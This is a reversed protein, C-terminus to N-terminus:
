QNIKMNLIIPELIFSGLRVEDLVVHEAALNHVVFPKYFSSSKGAHLYRLLSALGLVIKIRELRSFGEKSCFM